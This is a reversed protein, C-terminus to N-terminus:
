RPKDRQREEVERSGVVDPLFQSLIVRALGYIPAPRGLSGATASVAINLLKRHRLSYRGVVFAGFDAERSRGGKSGALFM